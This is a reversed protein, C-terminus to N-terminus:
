KTVAQIEVFLYSFKFGMSKSFEDNDLLGNKQRRKFFIKRMEDKQSKQILKTQNGVFIEAIVIVDQHDNEIEDYSKPTKWFVEPRRHNVKSQQESKSSLFVRALIEVLGSEVKRNLNDDIRETKKQGNSM